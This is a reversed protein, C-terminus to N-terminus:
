FLHILYKQLKEILWVVWRDKKLKWKTIKNSFIMYMGQEQTMKVHSDLTKRHRFAAIM